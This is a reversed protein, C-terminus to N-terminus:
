YIVRYIKSDGFEKVCCSEACIKEAITSSAFGIALGEGTLQSVIDSQSTSCLIKPSIGQETFLLNLQRNLLTKPSPMIINEGDLDKISISEHAALLNKRPIIAKYEESQLKIYHLERFKELVGPSSIIFIGHLRRNLLEQLLINSGDFILEYTIAPATTKFDNLLAFLNM